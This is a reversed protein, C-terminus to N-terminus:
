MVSNSHLSMKNSHIMYLTQFLLHLKLNFMYYIYCLQFAVIQFLDLSNKPKGATDSHDLYAFITFNYCTGRELSITRPLKDSDHSPDEWWFNNLAKGKAGIAQKSFVINKVESLKSVYSSNWKNRRQLILETRSYRRYNYTQLRIKAFPCTQEINKRQVPHFICSLLNEKCGERHFTSCCRHSNILKTNANEIVITERLLVRTKKICTPLSCNTKM